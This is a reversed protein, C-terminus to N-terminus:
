GAENIVEIDEKQKNTYHWDGFVNDWEIVVHDMAVRKGTGIATPLKWVNSKTVRDGVKM